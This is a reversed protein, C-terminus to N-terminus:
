VIKFTSEVSIFASEVKAVALEVNNYANKM